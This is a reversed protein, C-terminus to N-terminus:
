KMRDFLSWKADQPSTGAITLRVGFERFLNACALLSEEAADRSLLIRACELTVSM